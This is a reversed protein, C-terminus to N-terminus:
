AGTNLAPSTILQGDVQWPLPGYGRGLPRARGVVNVYETVGPNNDPTIELRDGADAGPPQTFYVTVNIFINKQTYFEKDSGSPEQMSCPLGTAIVKGPSFSRGQGGTNDPGTTTARRVTCLADMMTTYLSM